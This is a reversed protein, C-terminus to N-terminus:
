PDRLSDAVEHGRTTVRSQYGGVTDPGFIIELCGANQLEEVARLYRFTSGADSLDIFQHGGAKVGAYDGASHTITADRSQAAKVLLERAAASLAPMTVKGGTATGGHSALVRDFYRDHSASFSPEVGLAKALETILRRLQGVSELPLHHRDRIPGIVAEAATGPSLVSLLPKQAGLRIGVEVKVYDSAMSKPSVVVVFAVADRILAVLQPNVGEGPQLGHDVASTYTIASSPLNLSSEILDVLPDVIAKDESAHSIFVQADNM